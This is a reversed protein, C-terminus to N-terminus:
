LPGSQTKFLTIYLSPVEKIYHNQVHYCSNFHIINLLIFDKSQSPRHQLWVRVLNAEDFSQIRM